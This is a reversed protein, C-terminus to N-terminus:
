FWYIDLAKFLQLKYLIPKINFTESFANKNNMTLTKLIWGLGKKSLLFKRDFFCNSTQILQVVLKSLRSNYFHYKSVLNIRTIIEMYKFIDSTTTSCWICSFLHMCVNKTAICDYRKLKACILYHLKSVFHFLFLVLIM